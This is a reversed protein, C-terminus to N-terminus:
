FDCISFSLDLNSGYSFFYDTSGIYISNVFSNDFTISYDKKSDESERNDNLELSSKEIQNKSEQDREIYSLGIRSSYKFVQSDDEFLYSYYGFGRLSNDYKDVDVIENFYDREFREYSKGAKNSIGFHYSHKDITPNKYSGFDYNRLQGYLSSSAILLILLVKIIRFM